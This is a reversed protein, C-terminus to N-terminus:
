HRALPRAPNGVVTEGSPVDKTVIAGMGVVAGRGIVLPKGPTGQRLVAGAGIYAHDEIVVNGLCSVRPAFTVFDGIVCDHAIYSNFNAHFQRGIRTNSSIVTFPCIIAGEGVEAADLVVANAARVTASGIGAAAARAAISARNACNGIALALQKPQGAALFQEWNLLRAGNVREPGPGDDVFVAEGGHQERVLPLVERGFGGMGFVGILSPEVRSM